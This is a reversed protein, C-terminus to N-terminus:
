RLLSFNGLLRLRQWSFSNFGEVSLTSNSRLSSSSTSVVGDEEESSSVCQDAPLESQVGSKVAIM